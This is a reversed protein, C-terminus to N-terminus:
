VASPVARWRSFFSNVRSTMASAELAGPELPVEHVRHVVGGVVLPDLGRVVEAHVLDAVLDPRRRDRELPM